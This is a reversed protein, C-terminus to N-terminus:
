HPLFVGAFGQSLLTIVLAPQSSVRGCASNEASHVTEYKTSGLSTVSTNAETVFSSVSACPACPSVVLLLHFPSKSWTM